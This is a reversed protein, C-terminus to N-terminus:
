DGLALEGPGDLQEAQKLSKRRTRELEPAYQKFSVLEGFLQDFRRQLTKGKTGYLAGLKEQLWGISLECCSWFDGDNLPSLAKAQGVDTIQRVKKGEKLRWGPISDPESALIEKYREELAALITKSTKINDIIRSGKEGVPLQYDGESIRKALSYTSGVLSRAEECNLRAPCRQCHRGPTRPADPQAAEALSLRILRYALEMEFRDYDAVTCREQLKPSLIAVRVREVQPHNFYYLGVLERLQDNNEAPDIEGFLTKADMILVDKGQRKGYAVDYQGSMKPEMGYHLWLREERGILYVEEQGAWDALLMAELRQLEELTLAQNANLTVPEGAWAQHVLTGSAADPDIPMPALLEHARLEVILNESGVCCRRRRASSASALDLRESDVTM